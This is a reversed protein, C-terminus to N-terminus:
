NGDDMLWLIAHWALGSAPGEEKAINRLLNPDAIDSSHEMVELIPQAKELMIKRIVSVDSFDLLAEVSYASCNNSKSHVFAMITEEAIKRKEM